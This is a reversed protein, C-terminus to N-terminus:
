AVFMDVQGRLDASLEALQALAQGMDQLVSTSLAASTAVGNLNQTINEAGQAADNVGRSMENTTATQEEVASAITLQYDNISAIIASIEGIATVAGATDGQIAEVRRAIDETARATEQALEKVEGAVVAFGKGAEGARAAEITANLALLNTQEAISTIVKVVNGIEQSSVGLKAITANTDAAVGTARNAVKAAENANQAIERISAGMQEAGASVAQVNQAVEESAGAVVGAQVSTEQASATVEASSASIRSAADATRSAAERVGHIVKRLNVVAVDLAAATIGIEDRGTLGTPQTLDGRALAEAVHRLSMVDSRLRRVLVLGVLLSFLAGAVAVVVIWRRATASQSTAQASLAASLTTQESVIKEIEDTIKVGLPSITSSRLKEIGAADGAKTLVDAQALASGYATADTVVAGVAARQDATPSTTALYQKALDGVSVLAADRATIFGATASKDPVYAASLANVRVSLMQFRMQGALSTGLVQETYMRETTRAMSSTTAVAVGGVLATALIAIGLASMVKVAVSLDTLRRRRLSGSPSLSSTPLISM